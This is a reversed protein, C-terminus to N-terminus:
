FRVVFGSTEKIARGKATLGIIINQPDLFRLDSYDGTIVKRGLYRKPMKNGFVVTINTPRYIKLSKPCLDERILERCFDENSESRSFTLHYNEPLKWTRLLRKEIKTYDYFQIKPFEEFIEPFTREWIVDSTINLRVAPKWGNISCRAAFYHIEEIFKKKFLPRNQFWLKTRAIRAQQVKNCKGQGAFNLCCKRCGESSSQCVNYGSTKYPALHLGAVVYDSDISSKALKPNGFEKTLLKM